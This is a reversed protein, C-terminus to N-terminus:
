RFPPLRLFVSWVEDLPLGPRYDFPTERGRRMVKAEGQLHCQECVAERLAPDLRAPNVIDLRDSSQVHQEGPGHCRECGIAHFRFLPQEYRNNTGAVPRADNCHCFLCPTSLPRDFLPDGTYGPSLDWREQQSYWSIPSQFLFGDRHVLYSRGRAGSGMTYAAEAETAFFPKGALERTAKHF